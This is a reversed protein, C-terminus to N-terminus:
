DEADELLNKPFGNAEMWAWTENDITDNTITRGKFVVGERAAAGRLRHLKRVPQAQRQKYAIEIAMDRWCNSCATKAPPEVGVKAGEDILWAIEAKSYKGKKEILTKIDM